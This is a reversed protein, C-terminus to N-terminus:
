ALRFSMLQFNDTRNISISQNFNMFISRRNPREKHSASGRSLTKDQCIWISGSLSFIDFSMAAFWGTVCHHPTSTLQIWGFGLCTWLAYWTKSPCGYLVWLLVTEGDDHKLEVIWHHLDLIIESVGFFVLPLNPAAGNTIDNIMQYDSMAISFGRHISTESFWSCITYKGHFWTQNGSAIMRLM